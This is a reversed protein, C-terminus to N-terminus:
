QLSEIGVEIYTCEPQSTTDAPPPPLFSPRTTTTSARQQPCSPAAHLATSTELEETSSKLTCYYVINRDVAQASHRTLMGSEFGMWYNILCTPLAMVKEGALFCTPQWQITATCLQHPYCFSRLISPPLGTTNSSDHRCASQLNVHLHLTSATSSTSTSTQTASEALPM